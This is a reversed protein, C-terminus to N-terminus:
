LLDELLILFDECERLRELARGKLVSVYTPTTHLAGAMEKGSAEEFFLGIIAEQQKENDLCQRIAAKLRDRLEETMEPGQRTSSDSRDGIGRMGSGADESEGRFTLDAETIERPEWAPEGDETEEGPRARKKLQAIVERRVVMRAFGLFSGPDVVDDLSRWINILAMQASEEAIYEDDGAYHLAVRYLYRHLERLAERQRLTGNAQCAEHWLHCYRNITAHEIIKDPPLRSRQQRRQVEALVEEIFAGEDRVLGWGRDALVQRAIRRCREHLQEEGM